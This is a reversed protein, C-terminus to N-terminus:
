DLCKNKREGRLIPIDGGKQRWGFNNADEGTGDEGKRNKRGHHLHQVRGTSIM